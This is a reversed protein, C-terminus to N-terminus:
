CILEIESKVKEYWNIISDRGVKGFDEEISKIILDVSMISLKKAQSEIDWYADQHEVEEFIPKYISYAKEKPTEM